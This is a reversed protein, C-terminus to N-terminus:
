FTATTANLDILVNQCRERVSHNEEQQMLEQLLGIVEPRGRDQVLLNVAEMRVTPNQDRLLVDRLAERVRAEDPYRALGELAKLRVGPNGDKRVVHLLVDRVDPRDCQARLLDITGVRLSPDLTHQAANLLATRVDRDDPSGMVLRQKVDEIEIQVTGDANTRIARIRPTWNEEPGFRADATMRPGAETLPAADREITWRGALFSLLVMAMLGAAQWGLGNGFWSRWWSSYGGARGGVAVADERLTAHLRSRCQSLLGPPPEASCEEVARLMTRLRELEERLEEHEALLRSVENEEEFDLEDFLLFPLKRRAQELTM